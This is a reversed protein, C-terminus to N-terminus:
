KAFGETGLSLGTPVIKVNRKKLAYEIVAENEDIQCLSFFSFCNPLYADVDLCVFLCMYSSIFEVAKM